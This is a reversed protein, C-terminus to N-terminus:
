GIVIKHRAVLDTVTDLGNVLIENQQSDNLM